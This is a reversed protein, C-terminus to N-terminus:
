SLLPVTDVIAQCFGVYLGSPQCPIRSFLLSFWVPSNFSTPSSWLLPSLFFPPHTAPFSLSQIQSWWQGNVNLLRFLDSLWTSYLLTSISIRNRKCIWLSSGIFLTNTVESQSASQFSCLSNDLFTLNRVIINKQEKGMDVWNGCVFQGPLKQLGYFPAYGAFGLNSFELTLPGRSAQLAVFLVRIKNHSFDPLSVPSVAM